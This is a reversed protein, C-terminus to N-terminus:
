SIFDPKKASARALGFRLSPKNVKFSEREKKEYLISDTQTLSCLINVWESSDQIM